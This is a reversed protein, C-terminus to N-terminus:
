HLDNLSNYTFIGSMAVAAVAALCILTTLM